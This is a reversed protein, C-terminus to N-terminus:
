LQNNRESPIDSFYQVFEVEFGAPDIFYINARFPNEAGPKAITYGANELRQIVAKIDDVVYAFHAFGIQHGALDRNQGEGHDSLALYQNDDGLHLWHRPKGSWEGDGESHVRWHPFAAQYFSIMAQIDNVVLNVHELYM